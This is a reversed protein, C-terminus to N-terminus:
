PISYSVLSDGYPGVGLAYALQANFPYTATVGNSTSVDSGKCDVRMAQFTGITLSITDTKTLTCNQSSVNRYESQHAFVGKTDFNPISFDATLSWSWKAGPILQEVAILFHGSSDVVKKTSIHGDAFTFTANGYALGDKACEILIKQTSGNANEDVLTAEARTLDGTVATITETYVRTNTNIHWVARPRLPWYPHDCATHRPDVTATPTRSPAPTASPLMTATPPALTPPLTPRTTATTPPAPSSTPPRTAAPVPAGCANLLLLVAGVGAGVNRRNV